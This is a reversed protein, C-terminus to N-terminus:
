KQIILSESRWEKGDFVSLQYVGASLDSTPINVLQLGQKYQLSKRVVGYQDSIKIGYILAQVKAEANGKDATVTVQSNAPNPAIRFSSGRNVATASFDQVYTGCPGQM